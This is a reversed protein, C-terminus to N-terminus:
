RSLGAAKAGPAISGVNRNQVADRLLQADSYLGFDQSMETLRALGERRQRGRRESQAM